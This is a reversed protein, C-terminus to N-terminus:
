PKKLWDIVQTQMENDFEMIRDPSQIQLRDGAGLLL